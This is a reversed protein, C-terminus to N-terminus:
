QLKVPPVFHADYFGNVAVISRGVYCISEAFNCCNIWDGRGRRHCFVGIFKCRCACLVQESLFKTQGLKLGFSAGCACNVPGKGCASQGGSEGCALAQQQHDRVHVFDCAFKQRAYEVNRGSSQGSVRKGNEAIVAVNHCAALGTECHKCACGHLFNRVKRENRVEGSQLCFNREKVEEVTEAGAVFHAFHNKRFVFFDSREDVHVFDRVEFCSSQVRFVRNLAAGGLVRVDVELVSFGGVLVVVRNRFDHFFHHCFLLGDGASAIVQEIVDARRVCFLDDNGHAGAAVSDFFGDIIEVCFACFEAEDLDSKITRECGIAEHLSDRSGAFVEGNQVSGFFRAGDAFRKIQVNQCSKLVFAFGAKFNGAASVAEAALFESRAHDVGDILVHVVVGDVM